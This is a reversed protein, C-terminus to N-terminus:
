NGTQSPWDAILGHDVRIILGEGELGEVPIELYPGDAELAEVRLREAEAAAAAAAAAAQEEKKQLHFPPQKARLTFTASTPLFATRARVPVAAALRTLSDVGV